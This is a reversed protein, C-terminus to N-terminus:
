SERRPPPAFLEMPALASMDVDLLVPGDVDLAREFALRASEIDPRLRIADQIAQDALELVHPLALDGIPLCRDLQEALPELDQARVGVDGQQARGLAQADGLGVTRELLGGLAPAGPAGGRHEM